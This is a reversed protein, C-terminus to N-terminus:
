GNPDIGPTHRTLFIDPIDPHDREVHMHYYGPRRTSVVRPDPATILSRYIDTYRRVVGRHPYTPRGAKLDGPQNEGLTDAVLPVAVTWIIEIQGDLGPVVAGPATKRVGPGGGSGAGGNGNGSNGLLRLPRGDFHYQNIVAPDPAQGSYSGRAIDYPKSGPVRDVTSFDYTLKWKRRMTPDTEPYGAVASPCVFSWHEVYPGLVNGVTTPYKPDFPDIQDSVRELYPLRDNSEYSYQIIGRWINTLNKRCVLQRSQERAQRLSPLLLGMLLSIISLVVLLELLTFGPKRAPVRKLIDEEV